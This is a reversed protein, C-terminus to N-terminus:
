SATTSRPCPSCCQQSRGSLLVPQVAASCSLAADRGFPEVLRLIVVYYGLLFLAIGGGKETHALIRGNFATSGIKM